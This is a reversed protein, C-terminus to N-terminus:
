LRLIFIDTFRFSYDCVFYVSSCRHIYFATFASTSTLVFVGSALRTLYSCSVLTVLVQCNFVPFFCKSQNSKQLSVVESNNRQIPHKIPWYSTKLYEVADILCWKFLKSLYGTTAPGAWEKVSLNYGDIWCSPMGFSLCERQIRSCLSTNM